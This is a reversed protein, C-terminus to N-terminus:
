LELRLKLNYCRTRVCSKNRPHVNKSQRLRIAEMSTTGELCGFRQVQLEAPWGAPRGAVSGGAKAAASPAAKGSQAALTLICSSDNLHMCIPTPASRSARHVEAPRVAQHECFCPLPNTCCTVDAPGETAMCPLDAVREVRCGLM